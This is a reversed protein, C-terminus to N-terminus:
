LLALKWMNTFKGPIDRMSKENLEATTPCCVQKSRPVHEMHM